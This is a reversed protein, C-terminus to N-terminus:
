GRPTNRRQRQRLQHAEWAAEIAQLLERWETVKARVGDHAIVSTDFVTVRPGDLECRFRGTRFVHPTQSV